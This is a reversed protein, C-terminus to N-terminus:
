GQWEQLNRADDELTELAGQALAALAHQARKDQCHMTEMWALERLDDLRRRLFEVRAEYFQRASLRAPASVAM